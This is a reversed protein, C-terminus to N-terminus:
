EVRTRLREVKEALESRLGRFEADNRVNYLGMLRSQHYDFMGLNVFGKGVAERLTAVAERTEGLISHIKGKLYLGWPDGPRIEL